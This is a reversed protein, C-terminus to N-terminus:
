SKPDDLTFYFTAGQEVCGEAWIRGGHRQIIRQVLALGIGSGPFESVAHLRQFPGFLRDVYAPDFGAGNDRVFFVSAGNAQMQGVEIRASQRKGTFKWANGLLNELVLRLLRPDARAELGEQILFEVSRDAASKQLETAVSRALASLNLRETRMEARTVRSLNLLDDILVGMRQTAARIRQLYSKGTEGLSAGCDELLAHSFGDISRLPARLDHSVSYSFAELEKNAAELQATRLLLEREGKKRETVDCIASTVLTGEETEIPSLSIEVPFETGDKRRGNLELGAGMPRVRPDRFYRERHDPHIRRFRAPLLMDVNQGLLEARSYGFLKEAQSNVLVIAGKQNVIVIADPASEMLGRFKEEARKRDTIDSLIGTFLVSDSTTWSSLSLELPFESGNKRRGVLEVTKGIVRAERTRLFRDFGRRHSDHFREPMLLTLPRGVAEDSSYLFIHEAARNFFIINGCRDASVIADNATEALNRFKEESAQLVEARGLRAANAWIVLTLILVTVLVFLAVGTERDYLNQRRGVLWLWGLLPSLGIAPPLLRRLSAGAGTDSLVTKVIGVDGRALLMGASLLLFAVASHPALRTASSLGYFYTSGYLSGVLGFYSIGAVVLSLLQAPRRGRRTCKDLLLLGVGAILFSVAAHPSMRGPFPARPVDDRVLWEDIRPTWGFLYECLTLLGLLAVAAACIQGSRQLLRGRRPNAGPSQLLWLSLGALFFGLGTNAKMAFFGPWRSRLASDGVIWVVFVFAGLLATLIASARPVVRFLGEEGCAANTKM